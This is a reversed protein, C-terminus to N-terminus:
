SFITSPDAKIREMKLDSWKKYLAASIDVLSSAYAGAAKAADAVADDFDNRKNGQWSDGPDYKSLWDKRSNADEMWPKLEKLAAEIRDMKEQIAAAREKGDDSDAM